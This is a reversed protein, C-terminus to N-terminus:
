SKCNWPAVLTPTILLRMTFVIGAILESDPQEQDGSGGVVGEFELDGVGLIDFNVSSKKNCKLHAYLFFHLWYFPLVTRRYNSIKDCSLSTILQSYHVIVKM